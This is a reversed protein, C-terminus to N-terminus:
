KHSLYEAERAAIWDYIDTWMPLGGVQKDDIYCHAYVKRSNSNYKETKTPDNDNVRDFPIGHRLMWNVADTLPQRDRCTWIILYHGDAKLRRMVEIAYPAPAGIAPWNGTHLTGDFDVAIIM